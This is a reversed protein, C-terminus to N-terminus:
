DKVCRVAAGDNFSFSSHFGYGSKEYRLLIVWATQNSQPTVTRNSVWFGAHKGIDLFRGDSPNRYGGARASFGVDDTAGVNPGTWHAEGKEKLMGGQATEQWFVVEGLPVTAKEESSGLFMFLEKWDNLTPIHWGKPALGRSDDAAHWNYLYGYDRANDPNNKYAAFAGTELKVWAEDATINSIQDGNRYRTVRLNEAMWEQDGITITKYRNGDIDEVMGAGSNSDVDTEKECRNPAPATLVSLSACCLVLLSVITKKM